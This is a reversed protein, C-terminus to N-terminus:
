SNPKINTIFGFDHNALMTQLNLSKYGTLLWSVSRQTALDTVGTLVGNSVTFEVMTFTGDNGWLNYMSVDFGTVAGSSDTVVFM